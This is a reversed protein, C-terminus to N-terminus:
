AVRGYGAPKMGGLSLWELLQGSRVLGAQSVVVQGDRLVVFHPIGRVGFRETIEPHQDSNVKLVLARGAAQAAAREVEPGAMRCPGCWPAWFDVLVPVKASRVIEGFEKADVDLPEAV